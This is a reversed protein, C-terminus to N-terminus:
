RHPQWGQSSGCRCAQYSTRGQSSCLSWRRWDALEAQDTASETALRTPASVVPSECEFATESAPVVRPMEATCRRTPHAIHSAAVVTRHVSIDNPASIDSM